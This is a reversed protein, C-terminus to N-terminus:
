TLMLSYITASAKAGDVTDSFLWSKRSTAFPRIDRECINNDIAARGDTVYRSLYEWQNRAYAIAKGLLSQPTVKPALEDLWAKFADLVAVSHKQRLDYTYDARTQGVPLDGKALAEVRY